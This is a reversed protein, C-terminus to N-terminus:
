ILGAERLLHKGGKSLTVKYFPAGVLSLRKKDRNLLHLHPEILEEKKSDWRPTMALVARSIQAKPAGTLESLERFTKPAQAVYLLCEIGLASVQGGKSNARLYSLLRALSSLNKM